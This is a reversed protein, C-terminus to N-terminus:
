GLNRTAITNLYTYLIHKFCRYIIKFHRFHIPEILSFMNFCFNYKLMNQSITSGM